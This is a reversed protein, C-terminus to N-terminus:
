VSAFNEIVSDALMLGKESLALYGGEQKLLNEGILVDLIGPYADGLTLEFADEFDQIKIGEIRRLGLLIFEFKLQEQTLTEQSLVATGKACAAEIYQAPQVLNSWRIAAIRKQGQLEMIHGHAGAGLGLYDIGSWYGQNHKAEFGNQSYNSIEYRAYGRSPLFSNIEQMMSILLEEEPLKLKGNKYEAYFPTSKEISLGYVSIHNTGLKTIEELDYKLQDLTQSPTGYILDLSLNTFGAHKAANVAAYTQDRTHIRGLTKLMGDDFSQAGISIRNVGTHHLESLDDSSTTGPNAELTIEAGDQLQFRSHIHELIKGISSPRLLSPTGGGFYVSSVPRSQWQPLAGYYDLECLVASIYESEPLNTTAYTNFDCYKCRQRCFPIHVYISFPRLPSSNMISSVQM